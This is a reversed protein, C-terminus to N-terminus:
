PEIDITYTNENDIKISYLLESIYMENSRYGQTNISFTAYSVALMPCLGIVIFFVFIYKNFLYNIKSRFDKM